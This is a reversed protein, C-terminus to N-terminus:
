PTVKQFSIGTIQRKQGDSDLLWLSNSRGSRLQLAHGDSTGGIGAQFYRWLDVSFCDVSYGRFRTKAMDQFFTKSQLSMVYEFYFQHIPVSHGPPWHEKKLIVGYVEFLGDIFSQPDLPRDYLERKEKLLLSVIRRPDISNLTKKNITATRRAFDVSGEIGKLSNFRPFDMEFPLGAERARGALDEIFRIRYREVKEDAYTRLADLIEGCGELGPERSVEEVMKGKLLEDLQIFDDRAACRICSNVFEAMKQQRNLQRQYPKLIEGLQGQVQELFAQNNEM